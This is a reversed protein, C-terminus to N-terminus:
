GCEQLDDGDKKGTNKSNVMTNARGELGIGREGGERGGPPVM